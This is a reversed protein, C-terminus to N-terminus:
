SFQRDDVGVEPEVVFNCCMWRVLSEFWALLSSGDIGQLQGAIPLGKAWSSGLIIQRVCIQKRLQEITMAVPEFDPFGICLQIAFQGKEILATAFGDFSHVRKLLAM